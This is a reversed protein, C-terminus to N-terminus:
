DKREEVRYTIEDEPIGKEYALLGRTAEVEGDFTDNLTCALIPKADHYFVLWKKM